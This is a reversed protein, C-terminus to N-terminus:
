KEAMPWLEPPLEVKIDPSPGAPVFAAAPVPPPPIEQGAMWHSVKAFAGSAAGQYAGVNLQLAKAKENINFARQGMVAAQAMMHHAAMMNSEAKKMQDLSGTAQQKVAVEATGKALKQLSLAQDNLFQAQQEHAAVSKELKMLAQEYPAAAKSGAEVALRAPNYLTEFKWDAYAKVSDALEKEVM